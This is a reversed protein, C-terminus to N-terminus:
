SFVEGTTPCFVPKGSHAHIFKAQEHESEVFLEAQPEAAYEEAKWLAIGSAGKREGPTKAPHMLLDNYQVCHRRLWNRTEPEYKRLRGTVIAGIERRIKFLTAADRLFTEYAPQHDGCTPDECVIGDMDVMASELIDSHRWNWEFLRPTEVIRHFFEVKGEGGPAMYLVARYFRYHSMPSTRLSIAAQEMAAGAYLSDDIVVVSGSTHPFRDLRRGARMFVGGHASFNHVEGLPLDLEQAIISAVMMGSRPIGLVGVTDSPLKRAFAKADAVMEMYSIYKM